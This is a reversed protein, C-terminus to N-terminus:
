PVISVGSRTPSSHVMLIASAIAVTTTIVPRRAVLITVRIHRVIVLILSINDVVLRRWMILILDKDALMVM